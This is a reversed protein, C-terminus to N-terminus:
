CKDNFALVLSDNGYQRSNGGPGGARGGAIIAIRNDDSKAKSRCDAIRVSVGANRAERVLDETRRGGPFALVMDPRGDSLMFDNRIFDGSKGLSWNAPYRVIHAANRWAWREVVPGLAPMGGHIVVDIGGRANLASLEAEVASPNDFHRGGCVLLRM